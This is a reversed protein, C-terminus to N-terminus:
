WEAPSPHETATPKFGKAVLWVGLSFEWVAIPLTLALAPASFQAFGGFWTTLASVLLLPAGILGITPLIRPVLRSKYLLTGLLLANFAPMMGPGIVMTWNRVSVLSHGAIVLSDAEPGSAGAQRMTVVAMLSVIGIVIVAAEFARSTVFGLALGEGHRRVVPFLAVATGIAALANILDLMCAFLVRTDAGSSIIYNPDNLVPDLLPVAPISSVFTLLYLGGAVIATKRLTSTPVRTTTITM